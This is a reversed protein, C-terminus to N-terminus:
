LIISGIKLQWEGIFALGILYAPLFLSFLIIIITRTFNKEEPLPKLIPTDEKEEPFSLRSNDM